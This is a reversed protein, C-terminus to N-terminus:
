ALVSRDEAGPRPRSFDALATLGEVDGGAHAPPSTTGVRPGALCVAIALVLLPEFPASGAISKTVVTAVLVAAAGHWAPNRWAGVVALVVVAAFLATGVPGISAFLYPWLSSSRTGGLGVGLGFTDGIGTLAEIRRVGSAVAGESVIKFLGIDGTRGVHTGGCVEFSFTAGNAIEILRVTDEYKDGFFALAGRRIAASYTGESQHVGANQRVKENVLLEVQEIQEATMPEVHSFDFRLRDPAVLAGAQRVHAGLVQRLAALLPGVTTGAVEGLLGSM